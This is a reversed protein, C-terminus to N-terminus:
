RRRGEAQAVLIPGFVVAAQIAAVGVAVVAITEWSCGPPVLYAAALVVADCMVAALWVCLGLVLWGRAGRNACWCELRLLQFGITQRWYRWSTANTWLYGLRQRRSPISAFYGIM